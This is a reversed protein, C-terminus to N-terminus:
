YILNIYVLEISASMVTPLILLAARQNQLQKININTEAIVDNHILETIYQQKLIKM